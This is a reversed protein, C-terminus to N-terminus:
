MACCQNHEYRRTLIAELHPIQSETYDCEDPVAYSIDYKVRVSVWDTFIAPCISATKLHLHFPDHLGLTYCINEHGFRAFERSLLLYAMLPIPLSGAIGASASRVRTAM